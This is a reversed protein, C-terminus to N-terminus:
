EIGVCNAYFTATAPWDSFVGKVGVQGYLVDLLTLVDGDRDIM